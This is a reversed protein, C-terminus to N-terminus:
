STRYLAANQIPGRDRNLLMKIDCTLQITLWSLVVWLVVWVVWWGAGGSRDGARLVRRSRADAKRRSDHGGARRRTVAFVAFFAQRWAYLSYVLIEEGLKSGPLHPECLSLKVWDAGAHSNCARPCSM